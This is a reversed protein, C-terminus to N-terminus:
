NIWGRKELIGLASDIIFKGIGSGINRISFINKCRTICLFLSFLYNLGCVEM